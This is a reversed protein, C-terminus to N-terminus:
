NHWLALIGLPTKLIEMSWAYPAVLFFLPSKPRHFFFISTDREKIHLIGKLNRLLATGRSARAAITVTIMTLNAVSFFLLALIHKPIEKENFFNSVAVEAHPREKSNKENTRCILCYAIFFFVAVIMTSVTATSHHLQHLPEM